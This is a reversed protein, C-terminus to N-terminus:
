LVKFVRFSMIFAKIAKDTEDREDKAETKGTQKNKTKKKQTVLSDDTQSPRKGTKSLFSFPASYLLM